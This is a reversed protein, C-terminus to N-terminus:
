SAWALSFSAWASSLCAMNGGNRASSWSPSSSAPRWCRAVKFALIQATVTSGINAGLIVGISQSTSMLGASIFGVLLVTTISSSQIIATVSVGTFLGIFRNGTVKALITKMYDGAVQTLARTMIDMGFLFLALGGILGTFLSFQDLGESM